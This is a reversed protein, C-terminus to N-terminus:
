SGNVNVTLASENTMALAATGFNVFAMAIISCRSLFLYPRITYYEREWSAPDINLLHKLRGSVVFKNAQVIVMRRCDHGLPWACSILLLPYLQINLIRGSLAVLSRCSLSVFQAHSLPFGVAFKRSVPLNRSIKILSLCGTWSSSSAVSKRPWSRLVVMGFSEDAEKQEMRKTKRGNSRTKGTGNKKWKEGKKREPGDNIKRLM